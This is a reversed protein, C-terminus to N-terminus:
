ALFGRLFFPPGLAPPARAVFSLSPLALDGRGAARAGPALFGGKERGGLARASPALVFFCFFM